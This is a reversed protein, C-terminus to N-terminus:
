NSITPRRKRKTRMDYVKFTTDQKDNVLETITLLLLRIFLLGENCSYCKNEVM